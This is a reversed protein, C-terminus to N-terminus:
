GKVASFPGPDRPNVECALVRLRKSGEIGLRGNHHQALKPFFGFVTQNPHEGKIEWLHQHSEKVETFIYGWSYFRQIDQPSSSRAMSELQKELSLSVQSHSDGLEQPRRRQLRRDIFWVTRNSYDHFVEIMDVLSDYVWDFWRPDFDLALDMGLFSPQADGYRTNNRLNPRDILPVFDGAYHYFWDISNWLKSVPFYVIDNVSITVHHPRGQKDIYSATHSADPDNLYAGRGALRPPCKSEPGPLESWWENKPYCRELARRSARCATWLGGIAKYASTNLDRDPDDWPVMLGYSKDNLAGAPGFRLGDGGIKEAGKEKDFWYDVAYFAHLYRDGPFPRAALEWILCQIEHPFDPFRPFGVSDLNQPM